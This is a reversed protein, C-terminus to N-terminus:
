ETAPNSAWFGTKRRGSKERTQKPQSQHGLKKNGAFVGVVNATNTLHALGLEGSDLLVRAVSLNYMVLKEEFSECLVM